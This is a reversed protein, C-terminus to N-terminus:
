NIQRLQSKFRWRFDFSVRLGVICAYLAIGPIGFMYMYKVFYSSQGRVMNVLMCGMLGLVFYNFERNKTMGLRRWFALGLVVVVSNYIFGFAGMFLYGETFIYFAYGASRSAVGPNFMETITNQLYPYGILVLSNSTNSLIVEIPDVFSFYAAAFLMHIPAFYDKMIIAAAPDLEVAGDVYRTSEVIVLFSLLVMSAAVLKLVVKINIRHRYLEFVAIGVSLALLDTRNGMRFAAVLFVLFSALFLAQIAIRPFTSNNFRLVCYLVYVAAVLLKFLFVFVGLFFSGSVFEEDQITGWGIATYNFFLYTSEFLIVLTLLIISIRGWSRNRFTRVALGFPMGRVIKKWFLMFILITCAFSLIILRTAVYWPEEGFYAGLIQSLESFYLYGIQGFIAYLFLFALYIGFLRERKFAYM